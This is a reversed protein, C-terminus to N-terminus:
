VLDKSAEVYTMVAEISINQFVHDVSLFTNPFTFFIIASDALEIEGQLM